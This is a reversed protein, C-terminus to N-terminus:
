FAGNNKSTRIRSTNKIKKAERTKQNFTVKYDSITFGYNQNGSSDLLVNNEVQNSNINIKLSSDELDEKTIPALLDVPSWTEGDYEISGFPIKDDQLETEIFEGAQNYVPLVPYYYTGDLIDEFTSAINKWYRDNDPIASEEDSFGLMQWMSFSGTNFYRINTLDADGISKGLEEQLDTIGTTVVGSDM